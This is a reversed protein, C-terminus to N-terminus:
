AAAKGDKGDRGARCCLQWRQSQGPQTNPGVDQVCVWMSGDSTVIAGREYSCARQYTGKYDIGKTQLEVVKRELAAIKDHLPRTITAVHQRILDALEKALDDEFQAM